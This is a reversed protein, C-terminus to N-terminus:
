RCWDGNGIRRSWRSKNRHQRGVVLNRVARCRVITCAARRFEVYDVLGSSRDFILNDSVIKRTSYDRGVNVQCRDAHGAWDHLGERGHWARLAADNGLARERIGCQQCPELCIRLRVVHIYV